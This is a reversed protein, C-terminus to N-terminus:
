QLCQMSNGVINNLMSPQCSIILQKIQKTGRVFIIM